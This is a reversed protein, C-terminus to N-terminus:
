GWKAAARASRSGFGSAKWWGRRNSGFCCRACIASSFATATTFTQSSGFSFTTVAHGAGGFPDGGANFFSTSGSQFSASGDTGTGFPNGSFGNATTFISGSQFTVGTADDALLRHAADQLIVSGGILGKSGSSISVTLPNSSALTLSAGSPISLDGGTAGSITLTSGGSTANFTALVGNTFSLTAITQTPVNTITPSPTSSGDIVLNDTAAPTLRQPNWNTAVTWDTTVVPTGGTWTYTSGAPTLPTHAPMTLRVNEASQDPERDSSAKAIRSRLAVSLTLGAAILVAFVVSPNSLRIRALRM